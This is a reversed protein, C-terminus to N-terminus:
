NEEILNPMILVRFNGATVKVPGLKAPNIINAGIEYKAFDVRSFEDLLKTIRSLFKSNLKLPQAVEAPKWDNVMPMLKEINLSKNTTNPYTARTNDTQIAIENDTIEVGVAAPTTWKNGKKVNTIIWKCAAISLKFESPIDRDDVRTSFTALTYRDTAAATLQGDEVKVMVGALDEHSPARSTDSYNYLTAVSVLDAAEITIKKMIERERQKPGTVGLAGRRNIGHRLLM